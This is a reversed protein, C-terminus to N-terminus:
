DCIKDFHSSITESYNDSIYKKIFRETDVWEISMKGFHERYIIDCIKKSIFNLFYGEKIPHFLCHMEISESKTLGDIFKPVIEDVENTLKIMKSQSETIIYKM